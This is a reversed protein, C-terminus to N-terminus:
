NAKNFPNQTVELDIPEKADNKDVGDLKRKGFESASVGM